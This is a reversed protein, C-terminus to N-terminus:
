LNTATVCRRCIRRGPSRPRSREIAGHIAALLVEPGFPKTLFEVAGAKMAQVTM